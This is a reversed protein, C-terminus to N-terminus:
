FEGGYEAGLGLMLRIPFVKAWPIELKQILIGCLFPNNPLLLDDLKQFTPAVFLFGGHDKSGLFSETFTFNELNGIYKGSSLSPSFSLPFLPLTLIKVMFFLCTLYANKYMIPQNRGRVLVIHVSDGKHMKLTVPHM